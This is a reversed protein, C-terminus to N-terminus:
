RGGGAAANQEHGAALKVVVKAAIPDSDLTVFVNVNVGSGGGGGGPIPVAPLAPVARPAGPLAPLAGSGQQSQIVRGNVISGGATALKEQIDLTRQQRQVEILDLRDRAADAFQRKSPDNLIRQAAAIERDEKRREQRDRIAAERADLSAKLQSQLSDRIRENLGLQKDLEGTHAKAASRKESEIQAQIRLRDAVDTTIALERRYIAIREASTKAQALELAFQAQRVRNIEKLDRSIATGAGSLRDALGGTAFNGNAFRQRREEPTLNDRPAAGRAALGQL